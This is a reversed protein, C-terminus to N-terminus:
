SLYRRLHKPNHTGILSFYRKMDAVSDLRVDRNSGFRPRMGLKKLTKAVSRLLRKSASTFSLKKYSYWKGKSIYRHTFISGDTDILGRVCSISFDDRSKIWTPMDLGQRIKDGVPLGLSFLYRVLKIRSMVIVIASVDKRKRVGPVYNFLNQITDAVFKGYEFDDISHLTVTAQYSSMGGDGMMIGVFEALETSKKPKQISKGVSGPM